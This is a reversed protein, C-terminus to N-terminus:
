VTVAPLLRWSKRLSSIHFRFSNSFPDTESDWVYEILEEASVLKESHTMLYELIAFEKRTLDVPEEKWFVRRASTDMCLNGVSIKTNKMVIEQRLLARIRAELEDFDFPKTLYDNSGRDLGNIKDLVTSRASLILIRLSADKARIHELVELGDVKPLNLDLIMLNYQNIEYLELAEQGDFACDVAYGRKKLGKAVSKALFEEDEVLLLKM